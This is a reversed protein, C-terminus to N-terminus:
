LSHGTSLESHQVNHTQAVTKHPSFDLSVAKEIFSRDIHYEKKVWSNEYRGLAEKERNTSLSKRLLNELFQQREETAANNNSEDLLTSIQLTNYSEDIQEIVALTNAFAAKFKNMDDNVLASHTNEDIGNVYEMQEESLIVADQLESVLSLLHNYDSSVIGCDDRVFDGKIDLSHTSYGHDSVCIFRCPDTSDVIYKVHGNAPYMKRAFQNQKEITQRIITEIKHGEEGSLDFASLLLARNISEADKESYLISYTGDNHTMVAYSVREMVAKYRFMELEEYTLNEISYVKQNENNKAFDSLRLEGIGINLEYRFKNRADKCLFRDMGRTIFVHRESDLKSDYMKVEAFLINKSKLIQRYLGADEPAISDYELTNEKIKSYNILEKLARSSKTNAKEEYVINGLDRNNALLSLRAQQLEIFIDFLKYVIEQAPDQLAM